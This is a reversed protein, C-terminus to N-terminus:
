NPQYLIEGSRDALKKLDNAMVVLQHYRGVEETNMKPKVGEVEQTRAFNLSILCESKSKIRFILTMEAGQDLTIM